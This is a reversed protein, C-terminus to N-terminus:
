RLWLHAPFLSITSSKKLVSSEELVEKEHEEHEEQRLSVATKFGIPIMM